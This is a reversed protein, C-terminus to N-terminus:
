PEAAPRDTWALRDPGLDAERAAEVLAECSYRLTVPESWEPELRGAGLLVVLSGYLEFDGTGEAPLDDVVILGRFTGGGLDEVRAPGYVPDMAKLPDYLPDSPDHERPNYRPNHVILIGRGQVSACGARSLCAGLGGARDTIWTIGSLTDPLHAQHEVSTEALGDLVGREVGLVDEPTEWPAGYGWTTFRPHTNRYATNGSLSGPEAQATASSRRLHLAPRNEACAGTTAANASDLAFGDSSVNIGSISVGDDLEAREANVALPAPVTLRPSATLWVRQTARFPSREAVSALVYVPGGRGEDNFPNGLSRPDHSVPRRGGGFDFSDRRLTVEYRYGSLSGTVPWATPDAAGRERFVMVAHELGSAAVTSAEDAGAFSGVLRLNTSTATLAAVAAVVLAILFGLVLPLAFGRSARASAADRPRGSSAPRSMSVTPRSMSM